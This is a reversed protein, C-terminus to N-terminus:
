KEKLNINNLKKKINNDIEINNSIINNNKKNHNNNTFLSDLTNNLFLISIQKGYPKSLVLELTILCDNPISM